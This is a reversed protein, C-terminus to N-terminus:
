LLVSAPRGVAVCMLGSFAGEPIKQDLFGCHSARHCLGQLLVEGFVCLLCHLCWHVELQLCDVPCRGLHCM